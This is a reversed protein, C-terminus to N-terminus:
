INVAKIFVYVFAAVVSLVILMIIKFLENNPEYDTTILSMNKRINANLYFDWFCRLLFALWFVQSIKM